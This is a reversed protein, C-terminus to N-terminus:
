GGQRPVVSGRIRPLSADRLIAAALTDRPDLDRLRHALRIAAPARHAYLRTTLARITAPDRVSMGFAELLPAEYAPEGSLHSLAVAIEDLAWDVPAPPLSALIADASAREGHAFLMAAAIRYNASRSRQDAPLATLARVSRELEGSEALGMAYTRVFMELEKRDLNATTASIRLSGPDLRFVHRSQSVWVPLDPGRAPQRLEPSSVRLNPLQYWQRLVFLGQLHLNLTSAPADTAMVLVQADPPITPLFTRFAREVKLLDSAVPALSWETPISPGVVMGRTWVGAVLYAAILATVFSRRVRQLGAAALLSAGVASSATYYPAWQRVLAATLLIPGVVMLIALVIVRSTAVKREETSGSRLVLTTGIVGTLVAVFAVTTLGRPWAGDLDLIPLNSLCGIYLGIHEVVNATNPGVYGGLGLESGPGPRLLGHVGPHIAAWAICVVLYNAARKWDLPRGPNVVFPGLVLAPLFGLATEKSLLALAFCVLAPVHRARLELLLAGLVFVLALIDQAGSVWAVLFPLHSYGSFLIAALFGGRPGLSVRGIQSVLLVVVLLLSANLTHGLVGSHPSLAQLLGFYLERSIPRYFIVADNPLVHEIRFPLVRALFDYDDFMYPYVFDPLVLVLLVLPGFLFPLARLVSRHRRDM